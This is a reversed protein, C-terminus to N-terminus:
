EKVLEYIGEGFTYGTEVLFVRGQNSVYVHM